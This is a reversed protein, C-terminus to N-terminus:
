EDIKALTYKKIPNTENYLLSCTFIILALFVIFLIGLVVLFIHIGEYCIINTDIKHQGDKCKFIYIFAEIFPGYLIWYLILIMEKTLSIPWTM